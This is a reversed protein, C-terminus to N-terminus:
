NKAGHGKEQTGSGAAKMRWSANIQCRTLSLHAATLSPDAWSRGSKRRAGGRGGASDSADYDSPGNCTQSTRSAHGPM